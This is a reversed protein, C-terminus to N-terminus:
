IHHQRFLYTKWGFSLCELTLGDRLFLIDKAVSSITRHHNVKVTVGYQTGEPGGRCWTDMLNKGSYLIFPPLVQGGASICILATRYEKGTGGNAEFVHRTSSNVIVWQGLWIFLLLYQSLKYVFIGKTKDSFGTEDFNFIQNPKDFLDYKKLVTKLTAFWGSRNEETFSEARIRELKAQRKWSIEGAHRKVFSRLWKTGPHVALDLSKFYDASLQLAVDKTVEFGYDPLLKLLFVLHNEQDSTLYLPRGARINLSPKRRHERITSAPVNYKKSAAKSGLDSQIADVLARHSYNKPM